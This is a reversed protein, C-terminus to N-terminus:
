RARCYITLNSGYCGNSGAVVVRHDAEIYWYVHRWQGAPCNDNPADTGQYFTFGGYRMGTVPNDSYVFYPQKNYIRQGRNWRTCVVPLPETSNYAIGYEYDRLGYPLQCTAPNVTSLNGCVFWEHIADLEPAEDRYGLEPDGTVGPVFGPAPEGPGPVLAAEEAALAAVPIDDGPLCTVLVVAGAGFALAMGSLVIWKRRRM